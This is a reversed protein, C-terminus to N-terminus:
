KLLYLRKKMERIFIKYFITRKNSLKGSEFLEVLNLGDKKAIRQLVLKCRAM